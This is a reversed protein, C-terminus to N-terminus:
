FLVADEGFAEASRVIAGANGPDQVGDLLVVRKADGLVMSLDYEPLQVLSIVGQSNETSTLERFLADPVSHISTALEADDTLAHDAGEAVIVAKFTMDAAIAERLLHPSEAIAFGDDTLGGRRSARRVQKLLPNSPSTLNM